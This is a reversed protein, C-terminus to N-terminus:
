GDYLNQEMKDLTVFIDDFSKNVQRVIDRRYGPAVNLSRKFAEEAQIALAHLADHDRKLIEIRDLFFEVQKDRSDPEPKRDEVMQDVKNKLPPAEASKYFWNVKM